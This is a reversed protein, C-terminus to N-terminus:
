GDAHEALRARLQDLLGLLRRVDGHSMGDFIADDTRNVPEDLSALLDLGEATIRCYVRRRDDTDRTRAVWGKRELRDLIRTVGPTREIMRTAIDLTPLGEPEAGRLIRLVNYQQFTVDAAALVKAFRRRAIDSTRLLSLLAEQALSHFPKDQHLDEAVGHVRGSRGTGRRGRPSM